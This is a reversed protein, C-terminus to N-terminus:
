LVNKIEELPLYGLHVIEGEKKWAPVSEVDLCGMDQTLDCYIYLGEDLVDSQFEAFEELQKKCYPCTSSGYIIINNDKMYTITDESSVNNSSSNLTDNPNVIILVLLFIILVSLILMAGWFNKKEPEKPKKIEPEKQKEM